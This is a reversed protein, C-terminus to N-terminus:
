EQDLPLICPPPSMFVARPRSGSLNFVSSANCTLKLTRLFTLNIHLIIIVQKSTKLPILKSFVICIAKIRRLLFSRPSFMLHSTLKYVFLPCIDLLTSARGTNTDIVSREFVIFFCNDTFFFRIQKLCVNHRWRDPYRGVRAPCYEVM